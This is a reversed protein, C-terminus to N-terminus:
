LRGEPASDKGLIVVVVRRNANRGQASANPMVPRYQGFGVVALREPLLGRDMFLHVVSAARAASLEWNSPFATTDIPRDDTHGEVRVSNPYPKLAEALRQLAERAVPSLRAQGSAFLVDASIDVAVWNAYTRVNVQGSRILTDLAASVGAAVHSLTDGRSLTDTPPANGAATGNESQRPDASGAAADGQTVGHRDPLPMPPSAPLQVAFLRNLQSLPMQEAIGSRADTLSIPQPTTPAGRFAASLADSVVRYKGENVSSVAYMVVFFALLLTLLDAYPIAWAEHNVHEEHRKRRFM